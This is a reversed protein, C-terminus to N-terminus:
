REPHTGTYPCQKNHVAHASPRSRPGPRPLWSPFPRAVPPPPELRLLPARKARSARVNGQKGQVVWGIGRIQTACKRTKSHYQVRIFHNQSPNPRTHPAIWSLIKPALHVARHCRQAGTQADSEIICRALEVAFHIRQGVSEISRFAVVEALQDDTKRQSFGVRACRRRSGCLDERSYTRENREYRGCGLGKSAQLNSRDM